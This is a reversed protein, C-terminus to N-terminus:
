EVKLGANRFHGKASDQRGGVTEVCWELFTAFDKDTAGSYVAWQRKIFAKLEAFFEEIPNLDPSYPPLYILVIGADDCMQKIRESHHFSANDMVLVDYAKSVCVHLLQEIYEEFVAANTSGQFVRALIIGEQTYAPLIHYRQGRRFRAVQVPTVGSPSWGRRRFGDRMNCGSEDVFVIRSPHIASMNYIYSDRVGADRQQAEQRNKKKSWGARKLERCITSESVLIDFEDALYVVLEDLYRDPWVRLYELIAERMAPTLSRPRGSPNRPAKTHGFDQLNRRIHGVANRSCELAGGIAVDTFGADIMYEIEAHRTKSLNPAM